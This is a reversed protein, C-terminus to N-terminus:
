PSVSSMDDILKHASLPKTYWGSIYGPALDYESEPSGSVVYVRVDSFDAKERLQRVLDNGNCRPMEMDVLIFAPPGSKELYSMAEIGDRATAVRYGNMRLIEALLERENDHDEVVLVYADSDDLTSRLSGLRQQISSIVNEVGNISGSEIDDILTRLAMVVVNFQDRVGHRLESPYSSVKEDVLKQLSGMDSLSVSRELEDRCIRIERPAEFGLKVGSSPCSLVSISIDLGPIVVKQDEKRSLVLMRADKSDIQIRLETQQERWVIRFDIETFFTPRRKRTERDKPSVNQRPDYGM